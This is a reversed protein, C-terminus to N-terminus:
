REGVVVADRGNVITLSGEKSAQSSKVSAIGQQHLSHTATHGSPLGDVGFKVTWSKADASLTQKLKVPKEAVMVEGSLTLTEANKGIEYGLWKPVVPKGDIRWGMWDAFVRVNKLKKGFDGPQTIKLKLQGNEFPLLKMNFQWDTDSHGHKTSDFWGVEKGDHLIQARVSGKRSTEDFMVCLRTFGDADFTPSELTAGEKEMVWGQNWSVGELSWGESKGDPLVMLFSKPEYLTRGKAQSNNQSFDYVKGRWDVDGNWVKQVTCTLPNFAFWLGEAANFLVMRSRDEFALRCVPPDHRVEPFTSQALALVSLMMM